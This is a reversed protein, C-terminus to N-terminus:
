AKEVNVRTSHYASCGGLDTLRSTTLCNTSTGIGYPNMRRWNNKATRVVGPKVRTTVRAIFFAHGRQNSLKVRDGANIGLKQADQPNIECEYANFARMYKVNYFESNVRQPIAPSLMRFPLKREEETMEDEPLGLDIVPHYGLKKMQESYLEIKGSPTNIKGEGYNPVSVPLDIHLFKKEQLLEYTVGKYYPADTTMWQKICDISTDKFEQDTFGMRRGWEAFFDWNPMSEGLPEIVKNCVQLYWAGYDAILDDTEFQTSAPLIIDCLDMSDTMIMDFGVVFLDDRKLNKELLNTNPSVSMPNGNYIVLMHIPKIPKKDLDTWPKDPLLATDLSTMNVHQVKGIMYDGRGKNGNLGLLLRANSYIIGTNPRGFFGRVAFLISYARAMRAGNYNRNMGLGGRM